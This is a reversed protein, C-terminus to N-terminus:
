DQKLDKVAQDLKDKAAKGAKELDPSVDEGKDKMKDVQDAIKSAHAIETSEDSEEEEAVITNMRESYIKDYLGSMVDNEKKTTPKM